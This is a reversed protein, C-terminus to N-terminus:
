LIKKISYPPKRNQVQYIRSLYEGIVGLSFLLISTSFLLTVILSTYGLPVNFLLKKVIFYLGYCLTILSVLFGGYVLLKLPITTYFILINGLLNLLMKSSYNSQQYKRPEHRVEVLEIDETYWQLVEDIFIFNQHHKVIKTVLDAKILRFSSGEELTGRFLRSSKKLSKSGIRHMASHKKHRYYGYILDAQSAQYCTLLKKIEEPPTQLDDDITIIFEGKVFSFGCTTANHQGYNKSLKIATIQDPFRSKLDKLINWSQDQSCDEVFITEFPEGTEDFVSKIGLFLEELSQESNFVPVVVSYKPLVILKPSPYDIGRGPDFENRNDM